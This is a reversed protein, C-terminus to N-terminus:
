PMSYFLLVFDKHFAALLYLLNDGPMLQFPLLLFVIEQLQM